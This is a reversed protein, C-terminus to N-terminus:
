TFWFTFNRLMLAMQIESAENMFKEISNEGFIKNLIHYLKNVIIPNDFWLGIHLLDPILEM